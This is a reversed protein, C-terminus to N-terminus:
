QDHLLLRYIRKARGGGEVKLDPGLDKRLRQLRKQITTEELKGITESIEDVTMGEDGHEYLDHCVVLALVADGLFELRENSHLRNPTVSAHTLALALLDPDAFEYGIIKQCKDLTAQEM